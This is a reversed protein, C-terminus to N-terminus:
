RQRVSMMSHFQQPTFGANKRGRQPVVNPNQEAWESARKRKLELDERLKKSIEKQRRNDKPSLTGKESTIITPARAESSVLWPQDKQQSIIDSMVGGLEGTPVAVPRPAHIRAFNEDGPENLHYAELKDKAKSVSTTGSTAVDPGSAKAAKKKAAKDYTQRLRDMFATTTPTAQTPNSENATEKLPEISPVTKPTPAPESSQNSNSVKKEKEIKKEIKKEGKIIPPAVNVGNSRLSEVKAKKAAARAEDVSEGRTFADSMASRAALEAEEEIREQERKLIAKDARSGRINSTKSEEQVRKIRDEQFTQREKNKKKQVEESSRDYSREASKLKQKQRRGLKGDTENPADIGVREIIVPVDHGAEKRLRAQEAEFEKHRQEKIFEKQLKPLSESLWIAIEFCVLAGVNVRAQRAIEDNIRRLLSPPLSPNTFLFLPTEVVPYGPRLFVHLRCAESKAPPCLANAPKITLLYRDMGDGGNSAHRIKLQDDYIAKLAELEQEREEAAYELDTANLPETNTSDKAAQGLLSLLRLLVPDDEPKKIISSSSSSTNDDDDDDEECVKSAESHHFGLRVFGVIREQIRVSRTWEKNTISKAVSISPHPIAKIGASGVL